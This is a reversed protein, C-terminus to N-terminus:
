GLKDQVAKLILSPKLITNKAVSKPVAIAYTNQYAMHNLLVLDDTKSEM